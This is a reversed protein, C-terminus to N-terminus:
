YFRKTKSLLFSAIDIMKELYDEIKLNFDLLLPYYIKKAHGSRNGGGHSVACRYYKYFRTIFAKSIKYKYVVRKNFVTDWGFFVEYSKLDILKDVLDNDKTKFFAEFFRWIQLIRYDIPEGEDRAVRYFHLLLKPNKNKNLFSLDECFGEGGGVFLKKKYEDYDEFHNEVLIWHKNKYDCLVAESFYMYTQYKACILSFVNLAFGYAEILIIDESLGKNELDIVDVSLGIINSYRKVPDSGPLNSLSGGDPIFKGGKFSLGGNVCFGTKINKFIVESVILKLM